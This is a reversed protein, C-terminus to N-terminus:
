VARGPPHEVLTLGYLKYIGHEHAEKLDASGVVLFRRPSDGSVGGLNLATRTKRAEQGYKEILADEVTQYTKPSISEGDANPTAFQDGKYDDKLKNWQM